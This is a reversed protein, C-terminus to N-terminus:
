QETIGGKKEIRYDRTSGYEGDEWNVIISGGGAYKVWNVYGCVMLANLAIKQELTAKTLESLNEFM